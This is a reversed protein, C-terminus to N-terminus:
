VGQVVQDLKFSVSPLREGVFSRMFCVRFDHFTTGLTAQNGGDIRVALLVAVINLRTPYCDCVNTSALVISCSHEIFASRYMAGRRLHPMRATNVSTKCQHLVSARLQLSVSTCSFRMRQTSYLADDALRVNSDSAGSSMTFRLVQMGAAWYIAESAQHLTM